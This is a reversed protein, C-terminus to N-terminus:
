VRYQFCGAQCVTQDALDQERDGLRDKYNLFYRCERCSDMLPRAALEKLLPKFTRNISERTAGPAVRAGEAALGTCPYCSLDPNVILRLDSDYDGKLCHPCRTYFLFPSIRRLFALQEPAFMCLLLPRYFAFVVGSERAYRAIEMVQAALGRLRGRFEAAGFDRGHGPLVLSFHVMARTRFTGALDIVQRWGDEGPKIVWSLIVAKRDQVANEVNRRFLELEKRELGDQPYSFWISRVGKRLSPRLGPEYLGNTTLYIAQGHKAAIELIERFGPHLTPEGGTLRLYLWGQSRAWGALFEFDALSMHERFTKQLGRSYCFSCGRDCHYTLAVHLIQVRPGCPNAMLNPHRMVTQQLSVLLGDAAGRFLRAPWFRRIADIAAFSLFARVASLQPHQGCIAAARVPYYRDGLKELLGKMASM